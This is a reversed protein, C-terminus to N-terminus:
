NKNPTNPLINYNWEGRFEHKIINCEENVQRKTVKIGKQYVNNDLMAQIKLGARTTTAAILNVVVERSILPRGRWNQSIYSFMRHEIKNWKSTGPPFHLVQIEKNIEDALKQLEIKWLRVRYGNSGGCDATIMIKTASHYTSKGMNYWWSRLANVAFEATDSSIGVSVWGKNQGIDYVGYPAVKGLNKDIFDHGKVEIPKGKPAYERGNNKYEGINEKKKTDISLVPENNEHFITTNTAIYNFQADRDPDDAKEKTKRNAQLSYDLSDLINYITKQSVTHGKAKLEDRLKYTSKSSWLLSSIPSGCTAPSMLENLDQSLRGDKSCISKRGGGGRRVMDGSIKEPDILEKIGRAITSEAVGTALFVAKVGGYGCSKAETACWLRRSRENLCFSIGDYKTRISLVKDTDIKVTM